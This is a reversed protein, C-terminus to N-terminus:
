EFPLDIDDLSIEQETEIKEGFATYPDISQEEEREEIKENKVATKELLEVSSCVVETVYRRTGDAVDYDRTQIRGEVAIKMGKHAYKQMYEATNGWVVINVFESDYEGNANKFDNRIAISNQLVYKGSNTSKLEIDKCLNGIGVFKNM